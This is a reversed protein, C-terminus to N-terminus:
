AAAEQSETGRATRPDGFTASGAASAIRKILESAECTLQWFHRRRDGPIEQHVILGRVRLKEVCASVQAPSVALEAALTTQDVGTSNGCALFWVIEFAPESLDFQKALAGLRKAARRGNITARCLQEVVGAHDARFPLSATM